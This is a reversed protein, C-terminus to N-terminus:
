FSTQLPPSSVEIEGRMKAIAQPPVKSFLQDEMHLKCARELMDAEEKEIAEKLETATAIYEMYALYARQIDSQATMNLYGLEQLFASFEEVEGDEGLGILRHEEKVILSLDNNLFHFEATLKELKVLNKNIASALSPKDDSTSFKFCSNTNGGDTGDDTSGLASLPTSFVGSDQSSTLSGTGNMSGASFRSSAAFTHRKKEFWQRRHTKLSSSEGRRGNNYSYVSGGNSLQQTTTTATENAAAGFEEMQYSEEQQQDLSTSASTLKLHQNVLEDLSQFEEDEDSNDRSSRNSSHPSCAQNEESGAASMGSSSCNNGPYSNSTELTRIKRISTASHYESNCRTKTKKLSNKMLPSRLAYKSLHQTYLEESDM